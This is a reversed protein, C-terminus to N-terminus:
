LRCVGGIEKSLFKHFKSNLYQFLSYTHQVDFCANSTKKDELPNKYDLWIKSDYDPFENIINKLTEKVLFDEIICHDFPKNGKFSLLAKLAKKNIM